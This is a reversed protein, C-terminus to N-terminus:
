SINENQKKETEEFLPIIRKGIIDSLIHIGIASAPNQVTSLFIRTINFMYMSSNIAPTALGTDARGILPMNDVPKSTRYFVGKASPHIIKNPFTYVKKLRTLSVDKAQKFTKHAETVINFITIEKEQEVFDAFRNSVKAWKYHGAENDSDDNASEIFAKSVEDLDHNLFEAVAWLEYLTRFHAYAGDPFGNEILCIIEDYVLMAKGHIAYLACFVNYRDSKIHSQNIYWGWGDCIDMCKVRYQKM